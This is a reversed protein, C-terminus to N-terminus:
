KERSEDKAFSFVTTELWKQSLVVTKSSTRIFPSSGM